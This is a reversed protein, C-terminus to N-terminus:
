SVAEESLRPAECRGQSSIHALLAHNSAMASSPARMARFITAGAVRTTILLRGSRPHPIDFRPCGEAPNIQLDFWTTVALLPLVDDQRYSKQLRLTVRGRRVFYERRRRVQLASGATVDEVILPARYCTSSIDFTAISM